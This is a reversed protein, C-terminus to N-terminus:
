INFSYYDKKITRTAYSLEPKQPTPAAITVETYRLREPKLVFAYGAKDFFANNEELFQDVKQYRVASMQTGTERTLITSMNPPNIGIDPMGITMNKKNFEILENVDPTEKIDVYHLARMFISNSTMNVYEQFNKNEMFSTNSRDVIIIIKGTLSLLPADGLNSNHNEYSYNKGLLISNYSKLINALNNYMDQNASKIRLHIIIPDQPNPCTSNAFAYNQITYMIESFNISNYTEKIFYSNGSSTAVIPINNLSYIEFDLGRVGQKIVNKLNCIDVFDNKYSGGSCANYATKIYYDKLTYGCQRDSSNISRLNGNVKSYLSDMLSCESAELKRMYLFYCLMTIILIFIIFFVMRSVFDEKLSTVYNITNDIASPM